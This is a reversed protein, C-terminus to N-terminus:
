NSGTIDPLYKTDTFSLKLDQLTIQQATSMMQYFEPSQQVYISNLCYRPPWSLNEGPIEVRFKKLVLCFIDKSM